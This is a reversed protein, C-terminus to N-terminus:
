HRIMAVFHNFQNFYNFKFKFAQSIILISTVGDPVTQFQNYIEVLRLLGGFALTLQSFVCSIIILAIPGTNRACGAHLCACPALERCVGFASNVAGRCPTTAITITQHLRQKVLIEKIEIRNSIM